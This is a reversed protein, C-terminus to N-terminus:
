RRQYQTAGFMVAREADTVPERNYDLGLEEMAISIKHGNRTPWYYLDIM